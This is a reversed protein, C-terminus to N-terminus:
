SQSHLSCMLLIRRPQLNKAQQPQDPGSISQAARPLRFTGRRLTTCPMWPGHRAALRTRKQRKVKAGPLQAQGSGLGDVASGLDPCLVANSWAPWPEKTSRPPMLAATACSGPAWSFLSVQSRGRLQTLRNRNTNAHGVLRELGVKPWFCKPELFTMRNRWM